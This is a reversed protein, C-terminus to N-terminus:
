SSSSSLSCGSGSASASASGSSLASASASASASEQNQNIRQHQAFSRNREKPRSALQGEVLSRSVVVGVRFWNMRLGSKHNLYLLRAVAVQKEGLIGDRWNYMFEPYRLIYKILNNM